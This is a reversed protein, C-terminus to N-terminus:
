LNSKVEQKLDTGEPIEEQIEVIEGQKVAVFCNPDLKAKELAEKLFQVPEMVPEDTLKFTGWHIAMSKKAKIDQMIQVAEYPDIHQNKMMWRPNYAGIPILALDIPGCREGIEKFVECYGTDGAFYVKQKNSEMVYGCWLYYNKDFMTRNSWHQARVAQISLDDKQYTEWWDLATVKDIGADMFWEDLKLPVIWHPNHTKVIRQISPWDMHDYHSHSLVVYDIKPLNEVQIEDQISHFRKPYGIPSIGEGFVPDSLINIKNLQVLCTAHGIWTTRLTSSPTKIKNIDVKSLQLQDRSPIVFNSSSPRTWWWKLADFTSADKYGIFPSTFTGDPLHHAKLLNKM